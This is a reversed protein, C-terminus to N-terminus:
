YCLTNKIKNKRKKERELEKNRYLEEQGRKEATKRHNKTGKIKNSSLAKV